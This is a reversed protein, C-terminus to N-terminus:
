GSRIARRTASFLCPYVGNQYIIMHRRIMMLESRATHHTTHRAPKPRQDTRRPVDDKRPAEVVLALFSVRRYAKIEETPM